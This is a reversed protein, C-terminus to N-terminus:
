SADPRSGAQVRRCPSTEVPGATSCGTSTSRDQSRVSQDAAISREDLHRRRCRMVQPTRADALPIITVASPLARSSTAFREQFLASGHLHITGGGSSKWARPWRLRIPSLAMRKKLYTGFRLMRRWSSMGSKVTLTLHSPCMNLCANWADHTIQKVLHRLHRGNQRIGAM